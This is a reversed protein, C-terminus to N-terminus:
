VDAARLKHTSRAASVFALQRKRGVRGPRFGAVGLERICNAAGATVPRCEQGLRDPRSMHLASSTHQIQQAVAPRRGWGLGVPGDSQSRLATFM